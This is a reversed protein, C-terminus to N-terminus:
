SWLQPPCNKILPEILLQKLTEQEQVNVISLVNLSTLKEDVSYAKLTQELVRELLDEPTTKTMDNEDFGSSSYQFGGTDEGIGVLDMMLQEDLGLGIDNNLDIAQIRKRPKTATPDATRYGTAKNTTMMEIGSVLDLDAKDQKTKDVVDSMRSGSSLAGDYLRESFEGIDEQDDAYPEQADM